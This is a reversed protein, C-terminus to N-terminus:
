EFGGEKRANRIRARFQGLTMSYPPLVGFKRKFFNREGPTLRRARDGPNPKKAVPRPLPKPAPAPPTDPAEAMKKLLWALNKPDM